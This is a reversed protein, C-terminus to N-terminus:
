RGPEVSDSSQGAAVGLEDIGEQYAAAVDDLFDSVLALQDPTYKGVRTALAGILPQLRGIATRVSAEAAVIRVSRRDLDHEVRHAHGTQELRRVVSTTAGPSIGLRDAIETPTLAGERILSDMADLATPNLDLSRGLLAHYQRALTAIERLQVAYRPPQPAGTPESM